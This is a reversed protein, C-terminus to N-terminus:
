RKRRFPDTYQQIAYDLRGQLVAVDYETAERARFKAKLKGLAEARRQVEGMWYLSPPNVVEDDAM